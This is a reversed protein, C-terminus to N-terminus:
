MVLLKPNSFNEWLMPISVAKGDVVGLGIRILGVSLAINVIYMILSVIGATVGMNQQQLWANVLSNFVYLVLIIGFAGLLVGWNKKFDNFSASLMEGISFDKM